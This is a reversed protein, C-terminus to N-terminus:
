GRRDLRATLWAAVDALESPAIGHAVAYERYTFDRVIPQFADRIARGNAVPLLDDLTGHGVFLPVARVADGPPPVDFLADGFRGSLAVVGAVREPVARLVGLSMMAGQSFGLLYVRRADAGLRGPAADLWRVFDVLTERAQTVDPVITGDPKWAIDFWAFGTHYPRPARVSVVTFRPDLHAALSFLDNEDAGIGHLLVLLPPADGPVTRRASAVREVLRPPTAAMPRDDCAAALAALVAIVVM